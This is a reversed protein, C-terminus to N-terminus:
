SELSSQIKGLDLIWDDGDREAYPRWVGATHWDLNCVVDLWDLLEDLGDQQTLNRLLGDDGVPGSRQAPEAQVSFWGHPPTPVPM